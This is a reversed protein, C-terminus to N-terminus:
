KQAERADQIKDSVDTWHGCRCQQLTEADDARVDAELPEDCAGCRFELHLVRSTGHIPCDPHSEERTIEADGYEWSHMCICRKPPATREPDNAYHERLRRHYERNRANKKDRQAASLTHYQNFARLRSCAM